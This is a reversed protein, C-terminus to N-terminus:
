MSPPPSSSVTAVVAVLLAASPSAACGANAAHDAADSSRRTRVEVVLVVLPSSVSSSSPLFFRVKIQVQESNPVPGARSASSGCRGLPADKKSNRTPPYPIRAAPQHENRKRKQDNSINTTTLVQKQQQGRRREAKTPAIHTKRPTSLCRALSSRAHSRDRDISRRRTGEERGEDNTALHVLLQSGVVAAM